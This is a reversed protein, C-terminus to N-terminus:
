FSMKYVTGHGGKGIINESSFDATAASLAHLSFQTFGPVVEESPPSGPVVEESPPSGPVVEESPPPPLSPTAAASPSPPPAAHANQIDTLMVTAQITTAFNALQVKRLIDDQVRRLEKAMDGAKWLRSFYHKRQCLKVLELAEELSEAVDELPAHMMETQEALRSLLATCRTACKGIARCEKDNQKVTEVAEKIALAVKVLKEVGGLAIDAMKIVHSVVTANGKRGKETRGKRIKQKSGRRRRIVMSRAEMAESARAQPPLLQWLAGLVPIQDALLLGM